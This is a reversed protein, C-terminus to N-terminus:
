DTSNLSRYTRTTPTEPPNLPLMASLSLSFDLKQKNRRAARAELELERCTRENDGEDKNSSGTQILSWKKTSGESQKRHQQNSNTDYNRGGREGERLRGDCASKGIECM